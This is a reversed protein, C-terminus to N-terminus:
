RGCSRGVSTNEVTSHERPELPPKPAQMMAPFSKPDQWFKSYDRNAATQMFRGIESM